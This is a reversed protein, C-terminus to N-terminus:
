PGSRCPRHGIALRLQIFKEDLPNTDAPTTINFTLPATGATRWSAISLDITVDHDPVILQRINFGGTANQEANWYGDGLTFKYRLDAGAFLSLSLSFADDDQQTLLPMRKPDISMGGALDTFTNGFQALNGAMYIPIGLADNPATVKFTVEVPARPTLSVNIPTNIGAAVTAGQQFTDYKGDIAYFVVNCVGPMIGALAFRGNADTFTLSGCASVLIDALPQGNTQDTLTGSLTGANVAAPSVGMWTQVTDNVSEDGTVYFLRYRVESGVQTAEPTFAEGVKLYRYKVISGTPFPLTVQFSGDDSPSLDYHRPNYPLGTVEDLVELVAREGTALATPLKLHFAVEVTPTVLDNESVGNDIVKNSSPLLGCGALLTSVVLLSIWRYLFQFSGKEPENRKKM